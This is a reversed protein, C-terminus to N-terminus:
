YSNTLLKCARCVTRTGGGIAPVGELAKQTEWNLRKKAQSKQWPDNTMMSARQNGAAMLVRGESHLRAAMPMDSPVNNLTQSHLWVSFLTGLSM